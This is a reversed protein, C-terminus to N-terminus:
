SFRCQCPSLCLVVPLLWNQMPCSCFAACLEYCDLHAHLRTSVDSLVAACPSMDTLTYVHVRSANVGSCVRQLRQM